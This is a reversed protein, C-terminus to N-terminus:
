EEEDERPPKYEDSGVELGVKFCLTWALFVTFAVVVMMPIAKYWDSYFWHEEMENEKGILKGVQTHKM